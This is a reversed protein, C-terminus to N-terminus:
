QLYVDYSYSSQDYLPTMEVTVLTKQEVSTGVNEATNADVSGIPSSDVGESVITSVENSPVKEKTADIDVNVEKIGAPVQETPVRENNCNKHARFYMEYKKQWAYIANIEKGHLFIAAANFIVGVALM